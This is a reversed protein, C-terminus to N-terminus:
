EAAEVAFAPKFSPINKFFAFAQDFDHFSRWYVTGSIKWSVSFCGNDWRMASGTPTWGAFNAIL